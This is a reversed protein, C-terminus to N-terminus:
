VINGELIEIVFSIPGDMPSDGDIMARLEECAKEIRRDLVLLRNASRSCVESAVAQQIALLSVALTKNQTMNIGMVKM